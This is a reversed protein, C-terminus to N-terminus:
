SNLNMESSEISVEEPEETSEEPVEPEVKPEEPEEPVEPEVIPEEPVEPEVKPEEPEKPVEPEVKPEEPEKPVETEVKPEEPEVTPEEPVEPKIPKQPLVVETPNKIEGVEGYSSELVEGNYVSDILGKAKTITEEYPHMVYLKEHPNSYTYEYDGDYGNLSYSTINWKAMDSLQMKILKQIDKDEMNTQFSDKLSNLISNYKTIIAASTAKRVIGDLVAQQNVGRDRDGHPLNYRERAFSLSQKGNMHNYGQYFRYVGGSYSSSTFNYKSYVDVGGIADIVKELTSFNVRYYYNISVDLLDEITGISTDIGFVGAHTLKDKYGTTGRLQVYYDRPISVLLIQKTSPNITVLMNVDSRSVGGISGYTDIGSIYLSFTTKTVDVGKESYDLETVISIKDLIKFYSSYNLSEDLISYYSEEIILSEIKSDMLDKMMVNYYDYNILEIDKKNKIEEIAKNINGVEQKVYGLNNLDEIKSFNSDNKVLVLYNEEKFKNNGFTRFFSMTNTLYYTVVSILIVLFASIIYGVIKRKKNKKKIKYVLTFYLVLDWIAMVILVILIYKFPLINTLSIYGVFILLLFTMIIYLIRNFSVKRM